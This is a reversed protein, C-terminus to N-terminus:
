THLRHDVPPYYASLYNLFWSIIRIDWSGFSDLKVLWLCRWPHCSLVSPLCVLHIPFSFLNLSPTPVFKLLSNRATKLNLLTRLTCLPHLSSMGYNSKIFSSPLFRKSAQRQNLSITNTPINLSTKKGNLNSLCQISLTKKGELEIRRKAETYIAKTHHIKASYGSHVCVYLLATLLKSM